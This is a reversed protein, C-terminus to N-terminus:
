GSSLRYNDPEALPSVGWAEELGVNDSLCKEMCWSGLFICHVVVHM